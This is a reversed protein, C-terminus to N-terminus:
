KHIIIIIILLLWKFWGILSSCLAYAARESSNEILKIKLKGHTKLSIIKIKNLM